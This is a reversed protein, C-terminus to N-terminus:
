GRPLDDQAWSCPGLRHRAFLQNMIENAFTSSRGLMGRHQESNTTLDSSRCLLAPAEDSLERNNEAHCHERQESDAAVALKCILGRDRCSLCPPDSAAGPSTGVGDDHTRQRAGLM